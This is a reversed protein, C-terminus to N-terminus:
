IIVYIAYIFENKEKELIYDFARVKKRQFRIRKAMVLLLELIQSMNNGHRSRWNFLIKTKNQKTNQQQQQTHKKKKHKKFKRAIAM